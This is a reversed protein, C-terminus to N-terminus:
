TSDKQRAETYGPFKVAREREAKRNRLVPQYPIDAKM